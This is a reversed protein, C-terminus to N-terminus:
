EVLIGRADGVNLNFINMRLRIPKIFFDARHIM